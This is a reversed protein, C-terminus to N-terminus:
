RPVVAVILSGVLTESGAIVAVEVAYGLVIDGNPMEIEEGGGEVGGSLTLEVRTQEVVSLGTADLSGSPVVSATPSAVTTVGNSGAAVATWTIPGDVVTGGLTRPWRPVRNGSQGDGGAQYAFGTPERPRVINGAAYEKGPAWFNAVVNLWDLEIVRVASAHKRYAGDKYSPDLFVYDSNM